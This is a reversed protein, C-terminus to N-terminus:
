RPPRSSISSVRSQTSTPVVLVRAHSVWPV